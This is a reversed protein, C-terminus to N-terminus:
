SNKEHNIKNLNIFSIAECDNCQYLDIDNITKIKMTGTHCECPITEPIKNEIQNM